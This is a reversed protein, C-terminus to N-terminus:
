LRQVLDIEDRRLGHENAVEWDSKLLLPLPARHRIHSAGARRESRRYRFPDPPIEDGAVLEDEKSGRRPHALIQQVRKPRPETGVLDACDELRTGCFLVGRVCRPERVLRRTTAM